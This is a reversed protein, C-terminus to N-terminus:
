VKKNIFTGTKYRIIAKKVKEHAKREKLKLTGTYLFALYITAPLIAGWPFSIGLALGSALQLLSKLGSPSAILDMFTYKGALADAINTVDFDQKFDGSFSMNQWQYVLFGAVVPGTIKQLAPYKSIAEDAKMSGRKLRDLDGTEDMQELVDLFAVNLTKVAMLAVNAMRLLSFGFSKLVEYLERTMFADRVVEFSIKLEDALGRIHERLKNFIRRFEVKESLDGSLYSCYEEFTVSQTLHENFSLM